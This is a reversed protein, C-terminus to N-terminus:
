NEKHKNLKKNPKTVEKIKELKYYQVLDEVGDDKTTGTVRGFGRGVKRVDKGINKLKVVKYVIKENRKLKFTKNWDAITDSNFSVQLTYKGPLLNEIIVEDSPYADQSEENLWVMFQSTEDKLDSYIKISGQSFSFTYLLYFCTLLLVKKM